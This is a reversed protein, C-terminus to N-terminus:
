RLFIVFGDYIAQCQSDCVKGEFSILLIIIIDFLRPWIIYASLLTAILLFLFLRDFLWLTNLLAM